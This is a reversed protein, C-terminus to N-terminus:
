TELVVCSLQIFKNLIPKIEIQKSMVQTTLILAQSTLPVFSCYNVFLLFAKQLSLVWILTFKDKHFGYFIVVIQCESLLYM